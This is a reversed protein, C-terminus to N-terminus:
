GKATDVHDISLQIEEEIRKMRFYLSSLSLNKVLSVHAGRITNMIGQNMFIPNILKQCFGEPAKDDNNLM